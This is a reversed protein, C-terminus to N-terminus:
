ACGNERLYNEIIAKLGPGDVELGIEKGRSFVEDAKWGHKLAHQILLLGAARGGKRCHVLVKGHKENAELFECVSGVGEASLPAGGVGVHLYKMGLASAKEGEAAPSLPQDPEGPQRLNIVGVFGESKLARLDDETPQDGITVTPTIQKKFNM